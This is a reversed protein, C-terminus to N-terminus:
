SEKGGAGPPYLKPEYTQTGGPHVLKCVPDRPESPEKPPIEHISEINVTIEEPTTVHRFVSVKVVFGEACNHVSVKPFEM